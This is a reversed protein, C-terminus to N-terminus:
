LTIWRSVGLSIFRVEDRKIEMPLEGGDGESVKGGGIPELQRAAPEASKM